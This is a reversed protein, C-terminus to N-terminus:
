IDRAYFALASEGQKVERYIKLEGYEAAPPAKARHETIVLAEPALLHGAVIGSMVQSYIDSAYPPDFFIVDFKPADASLRKLAAAADRNIITANSIIGLSALNSEIVVCAHRSSDIFTASAAGRSLAEIGVAGSGACIDLFRSGEIHPAIINFLTERLRDSTPRVERGHPARLRRGRYKGGIVRVKNGTEIISKVKTPGCGCFRTPSKHYTSNKYDPSNEYAREGHQRQEGRSEGRL